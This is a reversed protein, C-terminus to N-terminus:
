DTDKSPPDGDGVFHSSPKSITLAQGSPDAMRVLPLGVRIPDQRSLQMAADSMTQTKKAAAAAAAAVVEVEDAAAKVEGASASGGTAVSRELRKLTMSANEADESQDTAEDGADVAAKLMWAQQTMAEVIAIKSAAIREDLTGTAMKKLSKKM